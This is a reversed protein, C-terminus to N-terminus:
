RRRSDTKEDASHIQLSARIKPKQSRGLLTLAMWVKHPQSVIPNPPPRPPPILPLIAFDRSALLAGLSPSASNPFM